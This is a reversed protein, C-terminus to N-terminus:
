WCCKEGDIPMSSLWKGLKLVCFSKFVSKRNRVMCRMHMDDAVNTSQDVVANNQCINWRIQETVKFMNSDEPGLVQTDSTEALNVM